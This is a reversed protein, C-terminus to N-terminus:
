ETSAKKTLEEIKSNLDKITNEYNQIRGKKQEEKIQRRAENLAKQTETRKYHAEIKESNTENVEKLRNVFATNNILAEEQKEYEQNKPYMKSLAEITQRGMKVGLDVLDQAVCVGDIVTNDKQNNTVPKTTNGQRLRSM